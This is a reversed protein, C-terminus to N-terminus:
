TAPSGRNVTGVDKNVDQQMTGLFRDARDMIRPLFIAGTM